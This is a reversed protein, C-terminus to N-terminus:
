RGRAIEAQRQVRQSRTGSSNYLEPVLPKVGLRVTGLLPVAGVTELYTIGALSNSAHRECKGSCLVPGKGVVSQHALTLHAAVIDGDSVPLPPERVVNSIFVGHVDSFLVPSRACELDLPSTYIQILNMYSNSHLM